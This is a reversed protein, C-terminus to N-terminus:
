ISTKSTVNKFIYIYIYKYLFFLSGMNLARSEQESARRLWINLEVIIDNLNRFYFTRMNMSVNM